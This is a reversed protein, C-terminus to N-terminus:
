KNKENFKGQPAFLTVVFNTREKTWKKEQEAWTQSLEVKDRMKMIMTM